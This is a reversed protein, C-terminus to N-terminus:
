RLKWETGNLLLLIREGIDYVKFDPFIMRQEEDSKNQSNYVGQNKWIFRLILKSIFIEQLWSQCPRSDISWSLLSFLYRLNDLGYIFFMEGDNPYQEIEKMQMKYYEAFVNQLNIRLYKRKKVCNNNYKTSLNWNNM